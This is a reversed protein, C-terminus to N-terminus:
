YKVVVYRNGSEQRLIGRICLVTLRTGLVAPAFGLKEAIEEADAVGGCSTIFDLIARDEASFGEFRKVEEKQLPLTKEFYETKTEKYYELPRNIKDVIMAGEGILSNPLEAMKVMPNGPVAFVDRGNETALRATIATGSVLEGEVVVTGQSMGVVIRNRQQYFYPKVVTGPPRESIVTGCELIGYYLKQNSRPYITDVSGALVAVTKGGADIAGQHAEADIGEAMGSVVVIGEAALSKSIARATTKGQLTPKRSGVVSVCLNNNLDIKKGKAFLIRPPSNIHKLFKPYEESDRDIIRIDNNSCYDMIEQAQKFYEVEGIRDAIKPSVGANKLKFRDATNSSFRRGQEEFLVVAKEVTEPEFDCMTHLWLEYLIEM